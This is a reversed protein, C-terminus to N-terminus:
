FPVEEGCDQYDYVPAVMIRMGEVVSITVGKAEPFMEDIQKLLNELKENM